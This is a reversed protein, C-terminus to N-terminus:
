ATSTPRTARPEYRRISFRSSRTRVDPSLLKVLDGASAGSVGIRVRKTSNGHGSSGIPRGKAAGRQGILTVLDDIPLTFESADLLQRDLEPWNQAVASDLWVGSVTANSVLLREIITRLARRYDPNRLNPKGFAGGRSHVTIAYDEVEVKANFPNGDADFITTLM